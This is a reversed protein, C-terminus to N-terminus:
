KEHMSTINRICATFYRGYNAHHVAVSALCLEPAVTAARCKLNGIEPSRGLLRFGPFLFSLKTCAEEVWQADQLHPTPKKGLKGM